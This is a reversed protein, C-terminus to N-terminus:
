RVVAGQANYKVGNKIIYLQGNEIFKVAKVGDEIDNLGTPIESTTFDVVIGFYGWGNYLSYSTGNPNVTLNLEELKVQTSAQM